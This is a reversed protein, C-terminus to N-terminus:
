LLRLLLFVGFALGMVALSWFIMRAYAGILGYNRPERGPAEPFNELDSFEGVVDEAAETAEALVARAAAVQDARVMIRRSGGVPSLLGIGVMPGDVGQQQVASAIGASELLGQIMEAEPRDSAYAVGVLEGNAANM